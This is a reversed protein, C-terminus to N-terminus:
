THHGAPQVNPVVPDALDVGPGKPSVNRQSLLSPVIEELKPFTPWVSLTNAVGTHPVNLLVQCLEGNVDVVSSCNNHEVIAFM